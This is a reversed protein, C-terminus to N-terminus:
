NLVWLTDRGNIFNNFYKQDEAGEQRSLWGTVAVWSGPAFCLLFM